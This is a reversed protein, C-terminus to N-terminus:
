DGNLAAKAGQEILRIEAWLEPTITMGSLGFGANAAAYDLGLWIPRDRWRPVVRWQGAIALYAEVAQQHEPWLGDPTDAADLLGKPM